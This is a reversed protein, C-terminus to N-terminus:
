SIHDVVIALKNIILDPLADFNILFFKEFFKVSLIKFPRQEKASLSM